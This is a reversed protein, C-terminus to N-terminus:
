WEEFGGAEELWDLELDGDCNICYYGISEAFKAVTKCKKCRLRKRAKLMWEPACYNVVM